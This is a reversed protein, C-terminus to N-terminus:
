IKTLDFGVRVLYDEASEGAYWINQRAAAKGVLSALTVARDHKNAAIQALREKQQALQEGAPARLEGVSRM